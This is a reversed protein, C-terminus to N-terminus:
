QSAPGEPVFALFREPPRGAFGSQRVLGRPPEFSPDLISREVLEVPMDALAALSFLVEDFKGAKAFEDVKGITLQGTQQL